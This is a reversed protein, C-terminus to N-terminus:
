LFTLKGQNVKTPRAKKRLLPNERGEQASLGLGGRAGRRTRKLRIEVVGVGGGGGGGGGLFGEITKGSSFPVNREDGPEIGRGIAAGGEEKAEGRPNFGGGQVSTCPVSGEPYAPNPRQDRDNRSNKKRPDLHRRSKRKEYRERNTKGKRGFSFRGERRKGRMAECSKGRGKGVRHKGAACPVAREGCLLLGKRREGSEQNHLITV